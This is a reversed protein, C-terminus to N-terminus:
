GAAAGGGSYRHYPVAEVALLFSDIFNSPGEIEVAVSGDSQNRVWGTLDLQSAIRQVEYRFGVGQVVGSFRFERRVPPTPSGDPIRVAPQQTGMSNLWRFFDM